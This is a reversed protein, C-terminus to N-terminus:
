SGYALFDVESSFDAPNKDFFNSFENEGLILDGLLAMIWLKTLRLQNKYIVLYQVPGGLIM